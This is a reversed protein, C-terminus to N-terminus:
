PYEKGYKDTFQVQIQAIRKDTLAKLDAEATATDATAEIKATRKTDVVGDLNTKVSGSATKSAEKWIRDLEAKAEPGAAQYGKLMTAAAEQGQSNLFEQAEPSMGSTTLTNQYDKLAQEREQMATIYAGTDFLGTEQNTYAEVSGALADYSENVANVMEAKAILENGGSALWAAEAEAAAKQEEQVAKLADRQDKYKEIQKSQTDINKDGAEVGAAM